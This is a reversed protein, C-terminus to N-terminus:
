YGSETGHSDGKVKNLLRYYNNKARHYAEMIEDREEQSRNAMNLMGIAHYTSYAEHLLGQLIEPNLDPESNKVLELKPIAPPDKLISVYPPKAPPYPPLSAEGGNTPKKKSKLRLHALVIKLM